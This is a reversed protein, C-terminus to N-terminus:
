ELWANIAELDDLSLLGTAQELKLMNILYDYRSRAYDRQARFTERLSILVDISTRTGVNFGAETAELATATSALTQKLANVQSIGFVVGLYADRTDQSTLRRQLL